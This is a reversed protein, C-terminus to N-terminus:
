QDYRFNPIAVQDIKPLSYNVGFYKVLEDMMQNGVNLIFESNNIGNPRAFARHPITANPDSLYPFDSVLFAVIYTSM